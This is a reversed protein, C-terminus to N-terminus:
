TDIYTSTPMRSSSSPTLHGFKLRTRWTGVKVLSSGCKEIREGLKM